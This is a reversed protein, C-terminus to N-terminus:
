SPKSTTLWNVFSYAVSCLTWFGGSSVQRTPAAERVYGWGLTPGDASWWGSGLMGRLDAGLQAPFTGIERTRVPNLNPARPLPGEFAFECLLLSAASPM